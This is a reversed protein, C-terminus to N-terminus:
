EKIRISTLSPHYKRILAFSGFLLLNYFLDGLLTGSFFPIAEVYSHVLSGNAYGYYGTVWQGFNTILFFIVSGTLSSVLINQGKEKGRLYFGLLTILAFSTYVWLMVPHFGNGSIFQLLLDSLFMITLPIIFAMKKNSIYCGGFLAVAGIPAFNAPHPILRSIVAILILAAAAKTRNDRFM